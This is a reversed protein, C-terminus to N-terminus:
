PVNGLGTERELGQLVLQPCKSAPMPRLMHREGFLPQVMPRYEDLFKQLELRMFVTPLGDLKELSTRALRMAGDFNANGWHYLCVAAQILGQYFRAEDGSTNRWMEELLEHCEFFDRENFLRVGDVFLKPLGDVEAERMEDTFDLPNSM